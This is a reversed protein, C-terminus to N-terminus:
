GGTVPPFFAVECGETLGADADCMGGNVAVRVARGESLASASPEGRAQLEQRLGGATACATDFVEDPQGMLERVSAFYKVHVRM